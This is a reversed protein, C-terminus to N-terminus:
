GGQGVRLVCCGYDLVGPEPRFGAPISYRESRRDEGPQSSVLGAALLVRLHKAVGDFDRRLAKAAETATITQGSALMKVLSWRVANALAPWVRRAELGPAPAPFLSALSGTRRTGPATAPPTYYFGTVTNGLPNTPDSM